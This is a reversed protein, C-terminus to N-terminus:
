KCDASGSELDYSREDYLNYLFTCTIPGAKSCGKPLSLKAELVFSSLEGPYEAYEESQKESEVIAFKAPINMELECGMIEGIEMLADEQITEETAGKLEEPMGKVAAQASPTFALVFIASLLQKM